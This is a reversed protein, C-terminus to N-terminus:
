ENEEAEELLNTLQKNTSGMMKNKSSKLSQRKDQGLMEKLDNNISEVDSGGYMSAFSNSNKAMRKLNEQSQALEM